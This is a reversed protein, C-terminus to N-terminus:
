YALRKNQPHKWGGGWWRCASSLTSRHATKNESLLCCLDLLLHREAAARLCKKFYFGGRRASACFARASCFLLSDRRVIRLRIDSLSKLSGAASPSFRPGPRLGPDLLKLFFELPPSPRLTGSQEVNGKKEESCFFVFGGKGPYHGQEALAQVPLLGYDLSPPPPSCYGRAPFM